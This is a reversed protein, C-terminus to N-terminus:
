DNVRPHRKFERPVAFQIEQAIWHPEGSGQCSGWIALPENGYRIMGSHRTKDKDIEPNPDAFGLLHRLTDVEDSKGTLFLWRSDNIRHMAAYERLKAPTDVEPQITLSYIFIDKKVEQDLIKRVERLNATITPCIGNCDAYMFNLVVIKDKILDDYFKHRRGSSSTLTFNPFSRERVVERGPLRPGFGHRAHAQEAPTPKRRGFAMKDCGTLAGALPAIAVGELIRRRSVM